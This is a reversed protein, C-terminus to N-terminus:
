SVREIIMIGLKKLIAVCKESYELVTKLVEKSRQFNSMKKYFLKLKKLFFKKIM